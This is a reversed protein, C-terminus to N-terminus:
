DEAHLPSPTQPNVPDHGDALVAYAGFTHPLQFRDDVTLNITVADAHRVM